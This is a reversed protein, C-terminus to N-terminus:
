FAERKHHKIWNQALAALEPNLPTDRYPATALVQGPGNSFGSGGFSQDLFDLWDTGYLGAIQQRPFGALATRRLVTAIRVPDNGAMPLESLAARRYANAQRHQLFRRIGWIVVVLLVLGVVIWGPTQPTMLIPTPAPVPELLDLLDALGLGKFEENM